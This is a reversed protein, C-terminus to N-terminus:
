DGKRGFMIDDWSPVSPRGGKRPAPRTAAPRKPSVAAPAPVQEEILEDGDGDGDGHEGHEADATAATATKARPPSQRVPQTREAQRVRAAPKPPAPKSPAAPTPEDESAESAEGSESADDLDDGQDGEDVETDAGAGAALDAQQDAEDDPHPHQAPPPVHDRPDLALEELPLAEEPAEDLGPV